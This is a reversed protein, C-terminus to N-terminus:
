LSNRTDFIDTCIYRLWTKTIEAKEPTEKIEEVPVLPQLYNFTHHRLAVPIKEVIRSYLEELESPLDELKQDLADIDRTEIAVVLEAVVLRAWIFVGEAKRVIESVLKDSLRIANENPYLNSTVSAFTESVFKKIDKSTYDQVKLQPCKAFSVEFTNELRSSCLIKFRLCGTQEHSSLKLLFQLTQRQSRAKCEDLGDVLCLIVAGTSKGSLLDFFAEQLEVDSWMSENSSSRGPRIKLDRFRKEIHTVLKPMHTLLQSMLIHLLSAFTRKSSTGIEHFFFSIPIVLKANKSSMVELTRKQGNIFKMLTSKEAGPKGSIWFLPQEDQLWEV